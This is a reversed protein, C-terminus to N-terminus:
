ESGFIRKIIFKFQDKTTQEYYKMDHDWQRISFDYEFFKFNNNRFEIKHFKVRDTTIEKVIVIKNMYNHVELGNNLCDGIMLHQFTM